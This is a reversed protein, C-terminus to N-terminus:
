PIFRSVPLVCGFNEPDDEKLHPIRFQERRRTFRKRCNHSLAIPLGKNKQRIADLATRGESNKISADVGMRVLLHYMECSQSYSVLTGRPNGILRDTRAGYM